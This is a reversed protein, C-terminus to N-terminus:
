NTLIFCVHYKCQAFKWIGTVVKEQNHYENGSPCQLKQWAQSSRCEKYNEKTIEDYSM